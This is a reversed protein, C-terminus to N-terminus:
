GGLPPFIIKTTAAAPHPATRNNNSQATKTYTTATIHATPASLMAFASLTKIYHPARQATKTSQM